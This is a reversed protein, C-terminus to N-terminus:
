PQGETRDITPTPDTMQTAGMRATTPQRQHASM